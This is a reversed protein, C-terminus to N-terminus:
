KNGFPHYYLKMSEELEGNFENDISIKHIRWKNKPKFFSFTFRVYQRDYKSLFSAFYYDKTVMKSNIKEYGLYPGLVETNTAPIQSLLQVVADDLPNVWPNTKILNNLATEKGKISYEKFFKDVLEDPNQAIVQNLCSFLFILTISISKM